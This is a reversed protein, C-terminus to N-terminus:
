PFTAKARHATEQAKDLPDVSLAVVDIKEKTFEDMHAQYDAL